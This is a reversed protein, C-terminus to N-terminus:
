YWARVSISFQNDTYSYEEYNSDKKQYKYDVGATLWEKIQYDLGASLDFNDDDRPKSRPVNYSNISYAAGTTLLFKASIVKQFSIGVGTDEFYETSESGSQRLARTLALAFAATPTAQFSVKTGSVWTDKEDYINGQPDISNEYNRWQYGVNLEGNLKAGIDWTLGAYVAYWSFDSDSEETVGADAPHTVYDRTGYQYRVFGWTKPLLRRQVGIRWQDADYDQTYDRALAYDQTYLSYLLSIRFLSGVHYGVSASFDKHTRETKLGLRYNEPNGYPDEADIYGFGLDGVLGVPALYHFDLAAKHTQWNNGNEAGYYALDGEYGLSLDGREPLDYHMNVEPLVHTIYDSEEQEKESEAGSALYINDDYVGRLGLSPDIKLNGFRLRAERAMGAAPLLLSLSTIFCWLITVKKLAPV